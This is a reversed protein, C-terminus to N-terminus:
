KIHRWIDGLLQEPYQSITCQNISFYVRQLRGSKVSNFHQCKGM